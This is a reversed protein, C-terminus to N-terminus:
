HMCETQVGEAGGVSIESCAVALPFVIQAKIRINHM